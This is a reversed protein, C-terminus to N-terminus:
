SMKEFCFQNGSKPSKVCTQKGIQQEPATKTGNIFTTGDRIEIRTKSGSPWAFSKVLKGNESHRYETCNEKDLIRSGKTVICQGWQQGLKVRGSTQVPLTQLTQAANFYVLPTVPYSIGNTGKAITYGNRTDFECGDGSMENMAFAGVPEATTSGNMDRWSWDEPVTSTQQRASEDDLWYYINSCIVALQRKTPKKVEPLDSLQIKWRGAQDITEVYLMSDSPTELMQALLSAKLSSGGVFDPRHILDSVLKSISKTALEYADKVTKENYSGNPVILAPAHFGLKGKPHLVRWIFPEGEHPWYSGGMFVLACASLCSANAEIRTPIPREKMFSTVKLAEVFSGGPSDLCLVPPKADIIKQADGKEFPGSFLHSCGHQTDVEYTDPQIRLGDLKTLTGAIAANASLFASLCLLSFVSYFPM